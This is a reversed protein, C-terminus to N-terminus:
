NFIPIVEDRVFRFVNGVIRLVNRGGGEEDDGANESEPLHSPSSSPSLSPNPTAQPAAVSASCTVTADTIGVSVDAVSVYVPTNAPARGAVSGGCAVGGSFVDGDEANIPPSGFKLSLTQDADGDTCMLVCRVDSDVTPDPMFHAVYINANDHKSTASGLEFTVSTSGFGVMEDVALNTPTSSPSATPSSSPMPTPVPTPIPTPAPTPAKTPTPTIGGNCTFKANEVKVTPNYAFLYLNQTENTFTISLRSAFHCSGKVFGTTESQYFPLESLKYAFVTDENVTACNLNCTVTTGAAQNPIVQALQVKAQELQGFSFPYSSVDYSFTEDIVFEQRAAQQAQQQAQQTVSTTRLHRGNNGPVLIALLALQQAIRSPTM